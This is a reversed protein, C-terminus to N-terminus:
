RPSTTTYQIRCSRGDQVVPGGDTDLLGQLVALRVTPTNYLYCEPVFKTASTTGCLGLDRLVATVPNAGPGRPRGRRNLTYDVGGKHRVVVAPLAAGLAAALERDATAFAPTTSGTLCGDGLLLGLAYPDLPVDRAPFEVPRSLLPLEFRHYHN